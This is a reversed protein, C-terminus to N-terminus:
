EVIKDDVETATVTKKFEEFDWDAMGTLHVQEKLRKSNTTITTIQPPYVGMASHADSAKDWPLIGDHTHNRTM